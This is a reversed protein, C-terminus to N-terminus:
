VTLYHFFLGLFVAAGLYNNLLFARFCQSPLRTRILKLQWLLVIAALVLGLYYWVGLNRYIGMALLIAFVGLQVIAVALVDYKGFWIATSKVGLRIDDERDVMAYITDYALAWLIAALYILWGTMSVTGTQAACVMPVAWGFALGLVVQPWHTVRKSFPYIAALVVGIFSMLITLRNMTLVLMFSIVALVAAVALAERPQVKGTVIPRNKSREVQGDINRDAFDNVACGASRMLFTGVIFVVLVSLKPQGASVVWLAWLMPWLLLLAGIPKDARVLKFYQVLREKQFAKQINNAIASMTRFKTAQQITLTNRRSGSPVTFVPSAGPDRQIAGPL